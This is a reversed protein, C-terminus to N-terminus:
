IPPDPNLDDDNPQGREMREHRRRQARVGERLVHLLWNADGGGAFTPTFAIDSAFYHANVARLPQAIASLAKEIKEGTAPILPTVTRGLAVSLEHHAIRRNRLDRAFETSVVAAEVLPAVKSNLVHPLIPEALARVTLRAGLGSGPPDTLRCLDLITHSLATDQHIYFFQGAAENLLDVRQQNTGYLARYHAWRVHAWILENYLSHYLPGLKSGLVSLHQQEVDEASLYREM